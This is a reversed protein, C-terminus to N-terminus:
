STNLSRCADLTAGGLSSVVFGISSNAGSQLGHFTHGIMCEREEQRSVGQVAKTLNSTVSNKLRSTLSLVAGSKKKGGVVEKKGINVIKNPAGGM